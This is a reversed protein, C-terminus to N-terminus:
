GETTTAPTTANCASDDGCEHRIMKLMRRKKDAAVSRELDSQADSHQLSEAVGQQASEYGRIKALVQERGEAVGAEKGRQYANDIQKNTCGTEWYCRHRSPPAVGNVTYKPPLHVVEFQETNCLCCLAKPGIPPSWAPGQMAAANGSM